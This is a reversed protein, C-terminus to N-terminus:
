SKEYLKEYNAEEDRHYIYYIVVASGAIPGTLALVLALIFHRATLYPQGRKTSRELMICLLLWYLCAMNIILFAISTAALIQTIANM